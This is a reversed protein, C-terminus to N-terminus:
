HSTASGTGILERYTLRKGAVNKMAKEFRMQDNMGKRNNYRFVQEDIYRDLHYPEFAVYTGRLGRKLLSWFNELGNTHVDGRVYEIAHNVTEHVFKMSGLNSYAGLSDTYIRGGRSINELIADQLVKRDVHPIVKARVERADRDLMAMVPTKKTAKGTHPIYDPNAVWTGSEDQIMRAHKKPDYGHRNKPAGGIYAEDVEVPSGESGMKGLSGSKMAMRIRHLMFWASKQTVGIARHVEMSSIGNKCNCLMWFACMWKDLGLPSDEFITGVKLTFQKKCGKCFWIRRTKIFSHEDSGCRPCSVLGDPWRLNLAYQFCRDPDSFYIIAQQLTDPAEM